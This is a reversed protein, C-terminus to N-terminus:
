ILQWQKKEKEIAYARSIQFFFEKQGGYSPHRVKTTGIGPFCIESVKAADNGIAIVRRPQLFDALMKMVVMGQDREKANHARNSFTQDQQFPHLPFVNWLFIDDTIKELMDWVMSATREAVPTGRTPRDANIDWRKLHTSFHIDDTLALGTRRGGRHGLDRGIWFADLDAEFAALLIKRLLLARKKPSESTDFFSCRESYPNFANSFELAQIHSVIKDAQMSPTM